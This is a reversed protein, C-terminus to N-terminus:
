QCQQCEKWADTHIHSHIHVYIPKHHRHWDYNPPGHKNGEYGRTSEQLSCGSSQHQCWHYHHRCTVTFVWLSLLLLFSHGSCVLHFNFPPFTEVLLIIQATQINPCSWAVDHKRWLSITHIYKVETRGSLEEKRRHDSNGSKSRETDWVRRTTM